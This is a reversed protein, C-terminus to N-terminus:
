YVWDRRLLNIPWVEQHSSCKLYVNTVMGPDQEILARSFWYRDIRVIKSFEDPSCEFIIEGQRVMFPIRLSALKMKVYEHASKKRFGIRVIFKDTDGLKAQCLHCKLKGEM